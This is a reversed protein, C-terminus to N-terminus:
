QVAAHTRAHARGRGGALLDLLAPIISEAVRVWAQEVSSRSGRGHGGERAPAWWDDGESKGSEAEGECRGEKLRRARTEEEEEETGKERPQREEAEERGARQGQASSGCMDM